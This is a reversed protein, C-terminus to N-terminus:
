RRSIEQVVDNTDTIVVWWSLPSAHRTYVRCTNNAYGFEFGCERADFKMGPRVAETKTIQKSYTRGATNIDGLDLCGTVILPSALAILACAFKLKRKM